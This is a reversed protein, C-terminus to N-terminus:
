RPSFPSILHREKAWNISPPPVSHVECPLVADEGEIVSMEVPEGGGEAGDAKFRPRVARAFM